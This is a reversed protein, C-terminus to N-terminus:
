CPVRLCFIKKLSTCDVVIDCIVDAWYKEDESKGDYAGLSRAWHRVISYSQTLIKGNLMEIVPINGTPNMETVRGSRKYEPWEDFSYRIDKYAAGADQRIM